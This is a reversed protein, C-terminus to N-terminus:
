GAQRVAPWSVEDGLAPERPDDVVCVCVCGRNASLSTVDAVFTNYIISHRFNMKKKRFFTYLITRLLRAFAIIIVPAVVVTQLIAPQMLKVTPRSVRVLHQSNSAPTPNNYVALGEDDEEILRKMRRVVVQNTTRFDGIISSDSQKHQHSYISM